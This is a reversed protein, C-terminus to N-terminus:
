VRDSLLVWFRRFDPKPLRLGATWTGLLAEAEQLKGQVTESKSTDLVPSEFDSSAFAQPQFLGAWWSSALRKATHVGWGLPQANGPTRITHGEGPAQRTLTCVPWHRSPGSDNSLGAM